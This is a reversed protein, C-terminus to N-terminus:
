LARGVQRGVDLMPMVNEPNFDLPSGTWAEPPEIIRIPVHRKGAAAISDRQALENYLQACKLDTQFIEDVMVQLVALGVDIVNDLKPSPAPANRPTTLIVDIETAGLDFASRLPTQNRVGGDIWLNGHVMPLSFMLPFASSALVAGVLDADNEDFVEYAGTTMSVAGVRVRKGSERVADVDLHTELFDQLPASNYFSTEWLAHIYGFPFHHKYVQRTTISEWLRVLERKAHAWDPHQALGVSNLAGVSVGCFADYDRPLTSIVGAQFAGYSGGGSLVLVRM